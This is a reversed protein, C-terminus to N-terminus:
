MLMANMLLFDDLKPQTELQKALKRERQKATRNAGGGYLEKQSKKASKLRSRRSETYVAQKYAISDSGYNDKMWESMTMPLVPLCNVGLRVHSCDGFPPVDVLPPVVPETWTHKCGNDSGVRVRINMEQQTEEDM